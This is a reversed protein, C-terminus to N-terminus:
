NSSAVRQADSKLSYRAPNAKFTQHNEQTAFMYFRGDHQALFRGEVAQQTEVYHVPDCGGFAVAFREPRGVFEQRAEASGFYYTRGRHTASFKPDPKVQQGHTLSVICLNTLRTIPTAVSTLAPVSSPASSSEASPPPEPTGENTAPPVTEGGSKMQRSSEDWAPPGPEEFEGYYPKYHCPVGCAKIAEVAMERVRLSPEYCCGNEKMEYATKALKNLTDADCCSTCHCPPEQAKTREGRTKKGVNSVAQCCQQWASDQTCSDCSSAQQCNGSQCNGSGNSRAKDKGKGKAADPNCSHRALMIRLGKAAEFRVEEWKEEEPNLLGLLMEKAEPFQVCDLDQLYRIAKKRNPIDLERARIKSALGKVGEEPDMHYPTKLLPDKKFRKLFEGWPPAGKDQASVSSMSGAVAFVIAVAAFLSRIAAHHGVASM